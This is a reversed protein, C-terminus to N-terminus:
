SPEDVEVVGGFRDNARGEGLSTLHGKLFPRRLGSRSRTFALQKRGFPTRRRDSQVFPACRVLSQLHGAQVADLPLDRDSSKREECVGVLEDPHDRDKPTGLRSRECTCT